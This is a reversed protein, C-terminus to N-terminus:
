GGIFVDDIYYTAAQKERLPKDTAPDIVDKAESPSGITSYKGTVRFEGTRFSLREVSDIGTQAFAANKVVTKENLAVSYTDGAADIELRLSLWSNAKYTFDLDRVKEKRVLPPNESKEYHAKEVVQVRGDKLLRIGIPARGQGDLVDIELRGRNAQKALVKFTIAVKRSEPFIRIARAYDHPDRDHLQLAKNPPEPSEVVNVPAWRPSYINWDTVAGGPKMNDFIDKVPKEVSAQVPLPIRSVWIDEKHMSYTIWMDEGAPDGNGEVIGRVYQPGSDKNVGVYRIKPVEWFSCLMNDYDISNDSTVIVQPSRRRHDLSYVLAYRGDETSQGWHKSFARHIGAAQIPESWTKGEDLSLATWARKWIGVAAGDPRHWFSLSKRKGRSASVGEVKAYAGEPHGQQLEYWQDTVLKNALLAECAEVFGKDQSQKYYPFLKNAKEENWGPGYRVFYVPGLSGDERVERIANGPGRFPNRESGYHGHVLLRGNPAIFFGMRQHLLYLRGKDPFVIRPGSWNRGDTSTCLFTHSHDELHENAPTGHFSLYFKGKWYALMPSHYYTWGIGDTEKKATRSCRFVQRCETGVALRLAGHPYDLVPQETGIYRIPMEASGPVPEVAECKQDTGFVVATLLVGIIVAIARTEKLGFGTNMKM